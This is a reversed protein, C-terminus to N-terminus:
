FTKIKYYNEKSYPIAETNTNPFVFMPKSEKPRMLESVQIVNVGNQKKSKKYVHKNYKKFLFTDDQNDNMSKKIVEEIPLGNEATEEAVKPQIVKIKKNNQSLIIIVVLFILALLLNNLSIIILSVVLIFRGIKNNYMTYFFDM